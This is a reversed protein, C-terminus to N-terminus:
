VSSVTVPLNSNTTAGNGLQGYPNAGWCRISDDAFIACTHYTGAALDVPDSLGQVQVPTLSSNDSGNGLQSNSGTGWCQVIGSAACTHYVGGTIQTADSVGPTSVPLSANTTTGDGLNGGGNYGWCRNAGDALVACSFWDGTGISVATDIGSVTVPVTSRGGSAYGDGLEGNGNNGWCEITGDDILACTQGSGAALEVAGTLGTVDTPTLSDWFTGNGLQGSDGRGWCKAAGGTVLACTHLPGAAVDTAGTVGPVTTPSTRDQYIGLGVQGYHGNGWCKITRDTLTACAHEMGAEVHTANTIGTSVPVTSNTTTGNGLQGRNNRGWCSVAGDTLACTFQQGGALDAAGVALPPLPAATTPPTATTPPAATTPPTTPRPTTTTAPRPPQPLPAIRVDEGRSVRSYEEVTMVPTWRGGKCSLVYSGDTGSTNGGAAPSCRSWMTVGTQCASLVTAVVLTALLTFITRKM